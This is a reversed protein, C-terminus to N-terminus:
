TRKSTGCLHWTPYVPGGVYRGVPEAFADGIHTFIVVWKMENMRKVLPYLWIQLTFQVLIIGSTQVFIWLLSFPRDEPREFSSFIIHLAQWRQIMPIISIFLFYSFYWFQTYERYPKVM